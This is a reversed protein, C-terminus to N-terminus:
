SAAFTNLYVIEKLLIELILILLGFYHVFSYCKSWGFSYYFSKKVSFVWGWSPPVIKLKTKLRPSLSPRLILSLLWSIRTSKTHRNRPGLRKGASQNLSGMHEQTCMCWCTAQTTVGVFMLFLILWYDMLSNFIIM